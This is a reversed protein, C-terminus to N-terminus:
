ELHSVALDQPFHHSPNTHLAIKRSLLNAKTSVTIYGRKRLQTLNHRLCPVVKNDVGSTSTRIKRKRIRNILVIIQLEVNSSYREFILRAKSSERERSLPDNELRDCSYPTYQGRHLTCIPEHVYISIFNYTCSCPTTM